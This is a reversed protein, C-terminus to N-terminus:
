LLFRVGFKRYKRYDYKQVDKKQKLVKIKGYKIKHRITSIRSKRADRKWRQIAINHEGCCSTDVVEGRHAVLHDGSPKPRSEIRYEPNEESGIEIRIVSCGDFQMYFGKRGFKIMYLRFTLNKQMVKAMVLHKEILSIM